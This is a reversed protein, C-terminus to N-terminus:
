HWARLQDTRFIVELLHNNSFLDSMYIVQEKNYSFVFKRNTHESLLEM